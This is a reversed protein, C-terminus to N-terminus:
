LAHRAYKINLEPVTISLLKFPLTHLAIALPAFCPLTSRHLRLLRLSSDRFDEDVFLQYVLSHTPPYICFHFTQM